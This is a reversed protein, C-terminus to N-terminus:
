GSAVERSVDRSLATNRSTASLSFGWRSLYPEANCRGAQFMMQM